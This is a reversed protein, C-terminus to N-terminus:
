ARFRRTRPRGRRRRLAMAVALGGGAIGLAAAWPAEPTAAAPALGGAYRVESTVTGGGAPTLDKVWTLHPVQNADFTASIFDGSYRNDGMCGATSCVAGSHVAQDVTQVAWTPTASNADTSEAWVADWTDGTMVTPDGVATTSYYLVGVHGPAGTAIATFTQTGTVAAPIPPLVTWTQGQDTSRAIAVQYGNAAGNASRAAESALYLTGDSTFGASPLANPATLPSTLEASLPSTAAPDFVHLGLPGSALNTTATTNSANDVYSQLILGSTPSILLGGTDPNLVANTTQEPTWTTGRDSSSYFLTQYAGENTVLYAASASPSTLWMRDTGGPVTAANCSFTQARDDRTCVATTGAYPYDFTLYFRGKPDVDISSDSNLNVGGGGAPNNYITGPSARWTAGGDTSVYVYELASIYLTGDPGAKVIPENGNPGVTVPAQISAATRANARGTTGAIAALAIATVAAAHSSRRRAATM